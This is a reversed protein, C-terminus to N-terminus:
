APCTGERRFPVGALNGRGDGNDQTDLAAADGRFTMTLWAGTGGAVAQSVLEPRASTFAGGWGGEADVCCPLLTSGLRGEQGDVVLGLGGGRAIFTYTAGLDDSTYTGAAAALAAAGVQLAAHRTAAATVPPATGTGSPDPLTVSLTATPSASGNAPPSVELTLAGPNGVLAGVFRTASVPALLSRSLLGLDIFLRCGAAAGHNDGDAKGEKGATAGAACDVLVEFTGGAGEVGDM